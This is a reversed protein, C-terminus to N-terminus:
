EVSTLPLAFIWMSRSRRQANRNQFGLFRFQRVPTESRENSQRGELEREFRRGFCVIRPDLEKNM